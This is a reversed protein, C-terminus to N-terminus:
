VVRKKILSYTKYIENAVIDRLIETVRYVEEYKTYLPSPTLRLVNPERFDQVVNMDKLALSIRYAEVHELCVHGGRRNDERPNGIKFGYMSLNMDVLFMFYATIHLSKQRIAPIGAETIINLAGELTSMSLVHPTGFQWGRADQQHEFEQKLQFQTEIKNGYWGMMGPLRTFHKRNIYIGASSGPGGCLYKYTCWVAFDADLEKFDMEIAGIAHCLDWGILIGKDKAARTIRKMDLIQASRYLVTPLLILAVDDTMAKIVNEESIFKGDISKVVKVAFNPQFGKLRVQSDVVYRDTAFNLDDVLIKYKRNTPKYFTSVVQHLAATTCGSVIVEDSDVGIYPAMQAALLSPYTLYRNNDYQWIKIGEEKWTRLCKLLMEESDKSALGLSNGCMYLTGNKTYFRNRFSRLPDKKDLTKAFEVDSEFHLRGM